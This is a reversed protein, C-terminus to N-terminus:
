HMYMKCAPNNEEPYGTCEMMDLHFKSMPIYLVISEMYHMKSSTHHILLIENCM